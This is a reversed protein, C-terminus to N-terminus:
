KQSKVLTKSPLSVLERVAPALRETYDPGAGRTFVVRLGQSYGASQSAAQLDKLMLAYCEARELRLTALRQTRQEPPVASGSSAANAKRVRAAIEGTGPQSAPVPTFEAANPAPLPPLSAARALAAEEEAALERKPERAPPKRPGAPPSGEPLGQVLRRKAPRPANGAPDPNLQPGLPELAEQLLQLHKRRLEVLEDQTQRFLERRRRLQSATYVLRDDPRDKLQQLQRTLESIKPELGTSVEPNAAVPPRVPPPPTGPPPTPVDPLFLPAPPEPLPLPELLVKRRIEYDRRVEEQGSAGPVELRAPEPELPSPVGPLVAATPAALRPDGGPEGTGGPGSLRAIEADLSRLQPAASHFALYRSPNVFVTPPPVAAPPRPVCGSGACFLALVMGAGAGAPHRWFLM